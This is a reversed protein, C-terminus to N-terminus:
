QTVSYPYRATQADSRTVRVTRVVPHGPCAPVDAFPGVLTVNADNGDLCTAPSSMSHTCLHDDSSFASTSWASGCGGLYSGQVEMTSGSVLASVITPPRHTSNPTRTQTPTPTSSPSATPTSTTSPTSTLTATPTATPCFGFANTDQIPVFAIGVPNDYVRIGHTFTDTVIIHVGVNTMGAAFFWNGRGIGCANLTKAIIEVNSPDFFSFYGSEATFNVAHATGSKGSATQWSAEVTFRGDICLVTDTSACGQPLPPTQAVAPLAGAATEAPEEPNGVYEAAAPCSSFAKTDTVPQFARGLPNSYTKTENTTTDTVHIEVQLNTLGGSFFWYHHNTSCGNLTKVALEVNGPELFWFYGSDPTLAAAHAIGSEGDPKTWTADVLFRGEGLCLTTETACGSEVARSTMLLTNHRSAASRAVGTSIGLLALFLALALLLKSNRRM